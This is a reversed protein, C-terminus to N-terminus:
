IPRLGLGSRDRAAPGGGASAKGEWEIISVRRLLRARSSCASSAAELLLLEEEEDEEVEDAGGDKRPGAASLM